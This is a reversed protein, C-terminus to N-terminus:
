QTTKERASIGSLETQLRLLRDTYRRTEKEVRSPKWSLEVALIDAVVPAAERALRMDFSQLGLRRNLIDDISVAMEARICYVVEARIAAAGPVLPAFLSNNQLGLTIVCSAHVGFKEILHRATEATILKNGLLDGSVKALNGGYGSIPHKRTPCATVHGTLSREAANIADEAMARYVTWKGGLASILGSPALTEIEYDRILKSTDRSNNSRILPRLGAIASVIDSLQFPKTLYPNLHRLLYEAEAATVIMETDIGAQTETTGVLLRDQWPISFIVRGDETKPIMLAGDGFGEPLPLLIHVGKSVSLRPQAHPVAMRRVEDSFPGTANVFVRATVSFSEHSERDEVRAAILRGNRDTGFAQVRAYNLVEGGQEACGQVLSLNYRADDFQGDAYMVMGVLGRSQLWPMNKGSEARPVFYSRSLSARGSLWDYIKLGIGYYVADFLNYCPVAFQRQRTLHPANNMMLRRERLARWLVPFQGFDLELIAQELYRLGGHILKTSATSTFGGFDGADLLLTKLGRAQADLACGAGTAGGGIVCVDYATAAARRIADSRQRM